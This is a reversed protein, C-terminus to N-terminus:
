QHSFTRPLTTNNTPMAAFKGKSSNETHAPKIKVVRGKSPFSLILIFLFVFNTKNIAIRAQKAIISEM